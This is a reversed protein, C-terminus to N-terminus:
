QYIIKFNVYASYRATTSTGLNANPVILSVTTSAGQKQIYGSKFTPSSAGSQNSTTGTTQYEVTIPVNLFLGLNNTNGSNFRMIQVSLTGTVATEDVSVVDVIGCIDVAKSNPDCKYYLKSQTTGELQVSNEIVPSDDKNIMTEVSSPIVKWGNGELSTLPVSGPENVDVLFNVEWSVGNFYTSIEHTKDQLNIPLTVGFVTIDNGDLDITAEYRFRYETGLVATGTPQITWNSTLTATGTIIYLDLPSTTPLSVTGGGATLTITQTLNIIPM